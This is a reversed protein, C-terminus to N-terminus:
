QEAGEVDPDLSALVAWEDLRAVAHSVNGEAAAVVHRAGVRALALVTDYVERQSMSNLVAYSDEEKGQIANAMLPFVAVSSNMEIM